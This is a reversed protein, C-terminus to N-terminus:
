KAKSLSELPHFGLSHFYSNHQCNNHASILSRNLAIITRLGNQSESLYLDCILFSQHRDCNCLTVTLQILNFNYLPPPSIQLLLLLLLVYYYQSYYSCCCYSYYRVLNLASSSIPHTYKVYLRKTALLSFRYYISGIQAGFVVGFM